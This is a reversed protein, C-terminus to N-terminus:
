KNISVLEVVFILTAYGPISGGTGRDGYGLEYPIYFKYKAGEKMLQVGETWGKIVRNLGFTAPQGREYSSDFVTGDILTGEYHVTVEDTELPKSGTGEVLVEYQLGSATTKIGPNQANKALFDVGEKKSKEAEKQQISQIIKNVYQEAVPYDGFVTDKSAAMKRMGEVILDINITDFPLDKINGYLLVGIAYNASDTESKLTVVEKKAECSSKCKKRKGAFTVAVCSFVIAAIFIVKKM